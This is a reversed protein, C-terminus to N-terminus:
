RGFRLAVGDLLARMGSEFINDLVLDYGTEELERLMKAFVPRGTITPGMSPLQRDMWQDESLGSSALAHQERELHIALGQVYSFFLVHLDCLTAADVGLESLATLAWEGHLGLNPLPLPRTIPGLQALWPHRRFLAWLTRGGLTLRERWDGSPKAPYGREGFAADAMLLVLEDKGRVYRYPAMAAVGLRAAVGRMSLAGLGETDAIAIATRVLQERTLGRQSGRRDRDAVVTGSRPEARVLGEQSLQALAKAATAMAVGHDAALRRTSPVRAGPPLEGRAIRERLDDAIAVYKM